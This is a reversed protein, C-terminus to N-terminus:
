SLTPLWPDRRWHGFFPPRARRECARRERRFARTVGSSRCRPQRWDPGAAAGSGLPAAHRASARLHPLLTLQVAAVTNSRAGLASPAGNAATKRWLRDIFPA